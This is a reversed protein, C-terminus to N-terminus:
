VDYPNAVCLDWHKNSGSVPCLGEVQIVNGPRAGVWKAMPDQCDIRRFKTIDWWSYVKKLNAIAEDDLLTHQPVKRHKSVNFQLHSLEFIQVLINEPVAIYDRLYLIVAESPRSLTVIIMTSTHNNEEAYALFNGIETQTLRAKHSFVVFVGDFTYMSTDDLPSGITDFEDAKHGRSILMEKLTELAKSQPSKFNDM